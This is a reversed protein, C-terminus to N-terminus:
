RVLREWRVQRTEADFCFRVATLAPDVVLRASGIQVTVGAHATGRVEVSAHPLLATRRAALELKVDLASRALAAGARELKGSKGREVGARAGGTAARPEARAGFSSRGRLARQQKAVDLARRVETLPQELPLGAALLTGGGSPAGVDSVAIVREARAAGGRLKGAVQIQEAALEANVASELELRGSCVLHAGEAHHASIDGLASLTTESGTVGGRVRISGGAYVSGGDVLGLIEVDGSATARFPRHVSRKITLSGEMDLHGSRLDVDGAHEHHRVVDIKKNALYQVVGPRAAELTGDPKCVVGEGLELRAQAVPAVPVASGDVRCGPVGPRAAHLKGLCSGPLVPKLLERDMFDMSGDERVRGPQLGYDFTPAFYGHSGPVPRQGEAVVVSPAHFEPAALARALDACVADNVGCVVGAERLSAALLEADAPPGEVITARVTMGDESIELTLRADAL